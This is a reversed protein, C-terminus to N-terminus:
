TDASEPDSWVPKQWPPTIEGFDYGPGENAAIQELPILWLKRRPTLRDHGADVVRGAHSEDSVWLTGLDPGWATTKSFRSGVLPLDRAVPVGGVENVWGALDDGGYGYGRHASARASTEGDPGIRVQYSEWDHAHWSQSRPWPATYSDPYYFWYQLYLSGEADGVCAADLRQRCDVVRTFATVPEDASSYTADGTPEGSACEVERCRRFDVPLSSMGREYAVLPAHDAVLRGLDTGYAITLEGPGGCGTGLRAACALRKAISDALGAGPVSAGAALLGGFIAAVLGLLAVWELSAQGHEARIRRSALRAMVSVSVWHRM